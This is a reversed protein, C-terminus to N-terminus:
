QSVIRYQVEHVGSFDLVRVVGPGLDFERGAVHPGRDTVRAVARQGNYQFEVLTGFPLTKHAVIMSYPGIAEGSAGRGSFNRGYHSAVATQWAGSGSIQPTPDPAPSPAPAQAVQKAASAATRAEYESLAAKSAALTEKARATEEALSDVAQAHEAQVDLLQEASRQAEVRATELTRLAESDRRAIRALLDWRTMFEQFTSASLLVSVFGVDDARYMSSVRVGLLKRAHAQQAIVSDLEASTQAMRAAIDASRAQAAEYQNVAREVALRDAATEAASPAALAPGVVSLCLCAAIAVTLTSRTTRMLSVAVLTGVQTTQGCHAPNKACSTPSYDSPHSESSVVDVM